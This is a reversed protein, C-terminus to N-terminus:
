EFFKEWLFDNVENAVGRYFINIMEQKVPIPNLLYDEFGYKMYGFLCYNSMYEIIYRGYEEWMKDIESSDRAEPFDDEEGDIFECAKMVAKVANHMGAPNEDRFDFSKDIIEDIMEEVLIKVLEVDGMKPPIANRLVSKLLESYFTM